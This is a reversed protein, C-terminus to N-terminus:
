FLVVCIEDDVDDLQMWVVEFFWSHKRQLVLIVTLAELAAQPMPSKKTAKPERTEM